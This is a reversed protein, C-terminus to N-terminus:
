DPEAVFRNTWGRAKWLRLEARSIRHAYATQYRSVNVYGFNKGPVASPVKITVFGDHHVYIEHVPGMYSSVPLTCQCTGGIGPHADYEKCVPRPNSLQNYRSNKTILWDGVETDEFLFPRCPLVTRM